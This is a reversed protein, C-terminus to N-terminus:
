ALAERRLNHDIGEVAKRTRADDTSLALDGGGCEDLLVFIGRREHKNVIFRRSRDRENARRRGNRLM